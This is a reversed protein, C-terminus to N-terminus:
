PRDDVPKPRQPMVGGTGRRTWVVVTGCQNDISLFEPPVLNPRPYVEMAAVDSINVYDDLTANTSSSPPMRQGDLVINAVCFSGDGSVNRRMLIEQGNGATRSLQIGAMGRMADTVFLTSRERITKADLITGVGSNMRREIARVEPAIQRGAIVRVTDLQVRQISLRLDVATVEGDRLRVPLRYPQYGIARAEVSQTGSGADAIAFTGTATSRVMTGSGLVRVVANPIPRGDLTRVTGRVTSRGRRMTTAAAAGVTTDARIAVREITGIAYDQVAYGADPIPVEIGGTTDTTSYAFSRLSSGSPVGCMAYRGSSDTRAMVRRMDTAMRGKALVWEPWEVLITAGSVPADDQARRVEGVLLGLEASAATRCTAAIMSRPSPTGLPLRVEGPESIDIRLIGPEVRLSDLIPHLFTALWSGNAVTDFAFRGLIDTTASRGVAPNDTRVIRVTANGVPRMTVSDWVTGVIRTATAPTASRPAEPVPTAPPRLVPPRIQAPLRAPMAATAVLALLTATRQMFTMAPIGHQDTM